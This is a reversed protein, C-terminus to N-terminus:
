LSDGLMGSNLINFYSIEGHLDYILDENLIIKKM